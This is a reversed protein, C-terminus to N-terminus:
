NSSPTTTQACTQACVREDTEGTGNKNWSPRRGVDWQMHVSMVWGRARMGARQEQCSLRYCILLQNDDAAKGLVLYMEGCLVDKPPTIYANTRRGFRSM